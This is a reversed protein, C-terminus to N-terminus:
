VPYRLSSLSRKGFFYSAVPRIFGYYVDNDFQVKASPGPM